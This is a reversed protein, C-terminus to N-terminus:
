LVTPADPLENPNAEGEALPFHQRLLADLRDVTTLLGPEFRGARFAERMAAVLAEFEAAPVRRVLGRDAVIEIAREALLLYVLVGNNHETDWVRLKGFLTVARQRASLRQWLYSMPLGAEVVVRIEGSHHRESASVRAQVRALAEAPLARRVDADDWWRHRLLRLWRPTTAHAQPM